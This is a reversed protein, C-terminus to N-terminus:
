DKDFLGKIKGFLEKADDISIKAKVADVVKEIIEDPLDINLLKEVTKVPEKKFNDLLDDNDKIQDVVKDILEEINM